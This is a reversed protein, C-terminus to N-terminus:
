NWSRNPTRDIKLPSLYPAGREVRVSSGSSRMFLSTFVITRIQRIASMPINRPERTNLYSPRSPRGRLSRDQIAVQADGSELRDIDGGRTARRPSPSARRARKGTM